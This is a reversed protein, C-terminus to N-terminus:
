AKKPAMGGFVSNMENTFWNMISNMQKDKATGGTFGGKGSMMGGLAGMGGMGGGGGSKAAPAAPSAAAPQAPPTAAAAADLLSFMSASPSLRFAASRLVKGLIPCTFLSKKGLKKEEVEAEQVM